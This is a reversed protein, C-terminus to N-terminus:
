PQFEQNGLDSAPPASGGSSVVIVAVTAAAAVGVATWFWWRGFLSPQAPEPAAAPTKLDLGPGPAAEVPLAVAPRGVAESAAGAAPTTAAPAPVLASPESPEAARARGGCLVSVVLAVALVGSLVRGCTRPAPREVGLAVSALVRNM